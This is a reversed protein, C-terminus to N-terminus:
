NSGREHPRYMCWLTADGMTGRGAEVFGAREYFRVNSPEGTELYVGHSLGDAASLDCFSSILRLGIGQGHLAPDVGIVGLYYHPAAPAFQAALGEYIALRDVMGPVAKEFDEWEQAIDAPWAPPSPTNGMVIGHVTDGDRAVLVPMGLALRARVLLSFFRALRERYTPGDQLLFGTIPDHAFAHSLRSVAQNLDSLTARSIDM